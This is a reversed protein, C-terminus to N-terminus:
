LAANLKQVYAAHHKDHHIEMTEKDISPELADFAYPLAPLKFEDAPADKADKAADKAVAYLPSLALAALGTGASRLLQRRNLHTMTNEKNSRPRGARAVRRRRGGDM